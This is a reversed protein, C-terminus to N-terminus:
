TININVEQEDTVGIANAPRYVDCGLIGMRSKLFLKSNHLIHKKFLYFFM